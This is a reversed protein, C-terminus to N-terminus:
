KGGLPEASFNALDDAGDSGPRYVKAGWTMGDPLVSGKGFKGDPGACIIQFGNAMLYNPKPKLDSAYPWVGLTPCDTDGLSNYDNGNKSSFYAYFNKGYADRFSLYGHQSAANGNPQLRAKPFDFFPGRRPAPTHESPNKPNAGFGNGKMGGLFFVLCQDGELVVDGGRDPEDIKGNSNWDIGKLELRPGFAQMLAMVSERDLPKNMDYNGTESLKVRSPVYRAAMTDKFAAIGVSLQSIESLCQWQKSARAHQELTLRVWGHRDPDVCRKLKALMEIRAVDDFSRPREGRRHGMCITLKDGDLEYIGLVKDKDSPTVDFTKPSAQPDIVYALPIGSEKDKQFFYWHDPEFIAGAGGLEQPKVEEGHFLIRTATWAGQLKDKDALATKEQANSMAPPAPKNFCGALFSLAMGLALGTARQMMISDV